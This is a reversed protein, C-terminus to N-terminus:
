SFSLTQLGTLSHLGVLHELNGQPIPNWGNSGGHHTIAVAGWVQFPGKWRRKQLEVLQFM